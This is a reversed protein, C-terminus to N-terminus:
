YDIRVIDLGFEKQKQTAQYLTPPNERSRCWRLVNQRNQQSIRCGLIVGTLADEPFNQIGPGKETDVIRWEQEYRWDTAKILLTEGLKGKPYTDLRLVNIIPLTTAYEVRIARMLPRFFDNNVDFELCFGTHQKAYHAWMLINDKIETFCCIGLKKTQLERAKELAEQLVIRDRGKTIIEMEVDTLIQKKSRKPYKKQYQKCLYRKRETLTGDYTLRPKSDFPDNFGDPSSFYIENNTFLKETYEDFKGYKYLAHPEALNEHAANNDEAPEKM